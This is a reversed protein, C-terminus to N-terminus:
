GVAANPGFELAFRTKNESMQWVDPIKNFQSGLVHKVQETATIM